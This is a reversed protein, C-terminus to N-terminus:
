HQGTLMSLPGGATQALGINLANTLGGLIQRAASDAKEPNGQAEQLSSQAPFFVAFPNLAAAAGEGHAGAGTFASAMGQFVSALESLGNPMSLVDAIQTQFNGLPNFAGHGSTAHPTPLSPLFPIMPIGPLAFPLPNAAGGGGGVAGAPGALLSSVGPIQPLGPIIQLKRVPHANRGSRKRLKLAPPTRSQPHANATLAVLVLCLLISLVTKM